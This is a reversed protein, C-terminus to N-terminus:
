QQYSPLRVKLFSRSTVLDMYRVPRQSTLIRGIVLLISQGKVSPDFIFDLQSLTRFLSVLFTHILQKYTVSMVLDTVLDLISKLRLKDTDTFSLKEFSLDNEKRRNM